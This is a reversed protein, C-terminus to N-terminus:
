SQGKKKGDGDDEPIFLGGEQQEPLTLRNEILPSSSGMRLSDFGGHFTELDELLKDMCAIERNLEYETRQLAGATQRARTDIDLKLNKIERELTTQDRQMGGLILALTSQEEKLKKIIRRDKKQRRQVSEVDKKLSLYLSGLSQITLREFSEDMGQVSTCFLSFTYLSVLVKGWLGM